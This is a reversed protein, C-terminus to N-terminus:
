RQVSRPTYLRRSRHTPTLAAAGGAAICGAFAGKRRSPSRSRRRSRLSTALARARRWLRCARAIPLRGRAPGLLALFPTFSARRPVALHPRRTGYVNPDSAATGVRQGRARPLVGGSRDQCAGDRRVLREQGGRAAASTQRTDMGRWPDSPERLVPCLSLRSVHNFRPSQPDASQRFDNCHLRGRPALRGEARVRTWAQAAQRL